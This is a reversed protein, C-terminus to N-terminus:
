VRRTLFIYCCNEVTKLARIMHDRFVKLFSRRVVIAVDDIYGFIQFGERVLRELLDDVVLCWPTFSLVDQPCCWAHHDGSGELTIHSKSVDTKKKDAYKSNM